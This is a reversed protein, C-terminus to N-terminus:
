GPLLTRSEVPAPEAPRLCATERAWRPVRLLVLAAVFAGIGGIAYVGQPGVAALVPAAVVYSVAIALQWAADSAAMVRSRIRDPTRRMRIGQEAVLTLADGCGSLFVLGLIPVFWPSVGVGVNTIGLAFTGLVLAWPEARGSLFRGALSGIVSGAGWSAIILGFGVSGADFSEALPVDAVMAMGMGLVLAVWALTMTRLVRDRVLFIIGARLGARGGDESAGGESFRGTVTLVLLASVVFTVANVAFVVEPGVVGVAVGGLLPGIMIGAYRGMAILSNAWSLREPPVLNPIAAASASLFPTEVVTAVFAVVLLLGVDHVFALAVFSAAGLLDSAVMVTRRDFRDGLTGALPGILGQVGFTLFLTASLWVASGTREYITFTLAVYAAAGGTLSILRALALRRVASRSEAVTM